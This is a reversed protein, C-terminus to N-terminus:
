DNTGGEQGIAVTGVTIATIGAIIGIHAVDGIIADTTIGALHRGGAVM